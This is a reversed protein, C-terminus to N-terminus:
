EPRLWYNKRERGAHNVQGEGDKTYTEDEFNAKKPKERQAEQSEKRSRFISRKVKRQQQKKATRRRHTKV